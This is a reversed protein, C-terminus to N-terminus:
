DVRVGDCAVVHAGDQGGQADLGGAGGDDGLDHLHQRSRPTVTKATCSAPVRKMPVADPPLPRTASDVTMCNSPPGCCVNVM